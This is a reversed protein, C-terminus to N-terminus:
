IRSTHWGRWFTKKSSSRKRSEIQIWHKEAEIEWAYRDPCVNRQKPITHENTYYMPKEKTQSCGSLLGKGNRYGHCRESPLTSEYYSNTSLVLFSLLMLLSEKIELRVSGRLCERSIWHLEAVEEDELVTEKGGDSNEARELPFWDWKQRRTNWRQRKVNGWHSLVAFSRPALREM